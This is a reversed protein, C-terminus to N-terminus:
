TEQTVRKETRCGANANEVSSIASKPILNGRKMLCSHHIVQSKIEHLQEDRKQTLALRFGKQLKPMAEHLGNEACELM